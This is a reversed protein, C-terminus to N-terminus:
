AFRGGKRYFNLYAPLVADMFKPVIGLDGFGAHRGDAVSDTKLSEVQDQTLLAGPLIELFRAHIKAMRFPLNVLRRKQQTYGFMREYIERFTVTEPGALEYIQGPVELAAIVALAVDGVYVPQFKTQGGGILPLVPLIQALRAFKNFFSDDEGFMVGPRLIATRPFHNMVTMEGEQKTRGYASHSKEVGLASVHAFADVHAEACASAIMAPIEVHAKQFSATRYERLIGICNIVVDSGRVAAAISASDNYDCACPVIQGPYGATKLFYGREPIRTAVKVRFDKRVLERVIQRGLFGTGGFITATKYHQIM